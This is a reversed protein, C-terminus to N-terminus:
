HHTLQPTADWQWRAAGFSLYTGSAVLHGKDNFVAMEYDADVPNGLVLDLQRDDITVRYSQVFNDPAYSKVVLMASPM